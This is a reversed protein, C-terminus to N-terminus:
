RSLSAVRTDYDLMVLVQAKVIRGEKNRAPTFRTRLLLERVITEIDGGPSEVGRVANVMGAEDILVTARVKGAAPEHVASLAASLDPKMLAKPFVDLDGAAYYTPDSPQSLVAATAITTTSASAPDVVRLSVKTATKSDPAVWIAPRSEAVGPMTTLLASVGTEAIPPVIQVTISAGGSGRAAGKGYHSEMLWAHLLMSLGLAVVLRQQACSFKRALM